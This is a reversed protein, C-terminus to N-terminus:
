QCPPHEARAATLLPLRPNLRYRTRVLLEPLYFYSMQAEVDAILTQRARWAKRKAPLVDSELRVRREPPLLFFGDPMAAGGLESWYADYDATRKQMKAGPRRVIHGHNSIAKLNSADFIEMLQYAVAVMLDKPRLDWLDRTTAVTARKSDDGKCGQLGGIWLDVPEGPSLAGLM